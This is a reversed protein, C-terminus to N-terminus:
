APAPELPGHPSSLAGLELARQALEERASELSRKSAEGWGTLRQRLLRIAPGADEPTKLGRLFSRSLWAGTAGLRPYQALVLDAPVPLSLDDPRAVGGVSFDLGKELVQAAVADLVPSALLEFFNRVRLEIRLDNLGVMVEDIGPVALIDRLRVLASATEVLITARARGDITRVFTEVEAATRFYPLMLVRAGAGVLTEIEATTSPNMPNIRAFPSAQKLVSAIGAMDGPGHDSLRLGEGSQRESKGLRELDLGIRDIGWGEAQVALAPENTLLTLKFREGFDPV